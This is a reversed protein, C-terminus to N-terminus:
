FAVMEKEEEASLTEESEIHGGLHVTHDPEEADIPLVLNLIFAVACACVPANTLM